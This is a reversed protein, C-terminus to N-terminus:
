LLAGLMGPLGVTTTNPLACRLEVLRTRLEGKREPPSAVRLLSTSIINWPPSAGHHTATEGFLWARQEHAGRSVLWPKVAGWGVCQRGSRVGVRHWQATV